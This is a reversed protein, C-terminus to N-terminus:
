WKILYDNQEYLGIKKVIYGNEQICAIAWQTPSTIAINNQGNTSALTIKQEIADMEKKFLEEDREITQQYIEGAEKATIM